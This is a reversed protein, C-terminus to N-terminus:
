SSWLSGLRDDSLCFVQVLVSYHKILSALLQALAVVEDLDRGILAM